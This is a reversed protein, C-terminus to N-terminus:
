WKSSRVTMSGNLDEPVSPIGTPRKKKACERLREKLILYDPDDPDKVLFDLQEILRISSMYPFTDSDSNYMLVTFKEKLIYLLCAASPNVIAISLSSSEGLRGGFGVM